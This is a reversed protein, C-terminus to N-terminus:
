SVKSTSKKSSQQKEAAKYAQSLLEVPHMITQSMKNMGFGNGIQMTCTPCCTALVEANTEKISDLKRKLIKQSLEFHTAGFTGAGGCCKDAESMEKLEVGPIMKLIKRPQQTIKQSRVLHCPDHYTVVTKPITGLEEPNIKLVDVLFVNVDIIKKVFDRAKQEYPTGIFPEVYHEEEKLTSSCSACDAVIYDIDANAYADINTKALSTVVDLQGNAMQPRGCCKINKPVVVEVGNRTLVDLTAQAVQPYLLNTACGLFYGVRMKKKGIAPNIEKITARATKKPVKPLMGEAKPLDGFGPIANLLGTSQILSRLGTYQYLKLGVHMMDLLANNTWLKRFIGRKISSPYLDEMYARAFAVYDHVKIGSPCISSCNECMLCNGFKEAVDSSPKIEGNRVMGTLYVQGRPTYNETRMERFIPCVSRCKGCRVCKQIQENILHVDKLPKAM